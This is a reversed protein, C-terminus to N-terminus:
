WLAHHGLRHCIEFLQTHIINGGLTRLARGPGPHPVNLDSPSQHKWMAGVGALPHPRHDGRRRSPRIPCLGPMEGRFRGRKCRTLWPPGRTGVITGTPAHQASNHRQQGMMDMSACAQVTISLPAALPWGPQADRSALRPATDCLVKGLGEGIEEGVWRTSDSNCGGFITGNLLLCEIADRPLYGIGRGGASLFLRTNSDM